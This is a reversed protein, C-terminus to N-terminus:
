KVVFAGVCGTTAGGGVVADGTAAGATVLEGIVEGTAVLQGVSGELQQV